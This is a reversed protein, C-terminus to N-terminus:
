MKAKTLTKHGTSDKERYVTGSMVPPSQELYTNSLTGRIINPSCRLLIPVACNNSAGPYTATVPGMRQAPQAVSSRGAGRVFPVSMTPLLNNMMADHALDELFDSRSRTIRLNPPMLESNEPNLVDIDYDARTELTSMNDDMQAVYAPPLSNVPPVSNLAASVSTHVLPYLDIEYPEADVNGTLDTNLVNVDYNSSDMVPLYQNDWVIPSPVNQTNLFYELPLAAQIGHEFYTTKPLSDLESFDESSPPLRIIEDSESYVRENSKSRVELPRLLMEPDRRMILDRIPRNVMENYDVSDYNPIFPDEYAFPATQIFGFSVCIICLRLMNVF